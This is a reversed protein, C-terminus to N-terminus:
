ARRLRLSRLLRRRQHWCLGCVGLLGSVVTAPEPVVTGNLQVNDIITQDNNGNSQGGTFTLRLVLNTQDNAGAPVAFTVIFNGGTSMTATGDAIFTAGADTSYSLAVTTFGNGGSNQAFSLSMNEILTADVAFQFTKGENKSSSNLNLALNNPDPDGTAVNLALGAVSKMDGASYNTTMTPHQLGLDGTSTFDPVGGLTSDEFNYYVILAANARPALAAMFILAGVVAGFLSLKHLKM